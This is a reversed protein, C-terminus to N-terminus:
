SISSCRAHMAWEIFHLGNFTSTPDLQIWHCNLMAVSYHHHHLYCKADRMWNNEISICICIYNDNIALRNDTTTQRDDTVTELTSYILGNLYVIINDLFMSLFSFSSYFIFDFRFGFTSFRDVCLCSCRFMTVDHHFNAKWIRCIYM